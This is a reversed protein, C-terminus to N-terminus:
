CSREVPTAAPALRDDSRSCLQMYGEKRDQIFMHMVGAMKNLSVQPM